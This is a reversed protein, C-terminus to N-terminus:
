EAPGAGAVPHGPAAGDDGGRGSKKSRRAAERAEKRARKRAEDDARFREAVEEPADNIRAAGGWISHWTRNLVGTPKPQTLIQYAVETTEDFDPAREIAPHPWCPQGDAGVTAIAINIQAGFFIMSSSIHFFLLTAVVGALAGHNTGFDVLSGIVFSYGVAFLLWAAASVLVGPLLPVRVARKDEIEDCAWVYLSWGRVYGRPLTLHIGLLLGAFLTAVVAVVAAALWPSVGGATADGLGEMGLSEMPAVNVWQLAISLAVFTFSILAFLTAIFLALLHSQIRRYIVHRKDRVDYAENFGNRAAEFASSGAYLGVAATVWLLWWQEQDATVARAKPAVGEIVGTLLEAMPAPILASQQLSVVMGLLRAEASADLYGALLIACVVFPGFSLLLTFAMHGAYVMHDDDDFRRLAERIVGFTWRLQRM